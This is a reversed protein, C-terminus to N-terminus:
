VVAAGFTCMCRQRCYPAVPRVEAKQLSETEGWYPKYNYSDPLANIMWRQYFQRFLDQDHEVKWGIMDGYNLLAEQTQQFSSINFYMVGCNAM